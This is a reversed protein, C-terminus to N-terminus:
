AAPEQDPYEREHFMPNFQSHHILIYVENQIDWVRIYESKPYEKEGRKAYDKDFRSKM